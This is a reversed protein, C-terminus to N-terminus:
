INGSIKLLTEAMGFTIAKVAFVTFVGDDYIAYIAKVWCIGKGREVVFISMGNIIFVMKESMAGRM